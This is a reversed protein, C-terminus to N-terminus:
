TPGSRLSSLRNRSGDGAAVSRQCAKRRHGQGNVSRTPFRSYAPPSARAVVQRRNGDESGSRPVARSVGMTRQLDSAYRSVHLATRGVAVGGGWVERTCSNGPWPSCCPM